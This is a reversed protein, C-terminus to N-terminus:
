VAMHVRLTWFYNRNQETTVKSPISSISTLCEEFPGVYYYSLISTQIHSISRYSSCTCHVFAKRVKCHKYNSELHTQIECIDRKTQKQSSYNCGRSPFCHYYSIYTRTCHHPCKIKTFEGRKSTQISRTCYTVHSSFEQLSEGIRFRRKVGRQHGTCRAVTCYLEIHLVNGEYDDVDFVTLM